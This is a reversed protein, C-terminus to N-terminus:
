PRGWRLAAGVAVADVARASADLPLQLTAGVQWSRLDVELGTVLEHVFVEGGAAAPDLLTTATGLRAGLRVHPLLEMAGGVYVRAPARPADGTAHLSLASALEFTVLRSPWRWAADLTVALLGVSLARADVPTAAALTRVLEAVAGHRVTTPVTVSLRLRPAGFGRTTVGAGFRVNRLSAGPEGWVVGADGDVFGRDGFRMAGAVGLAAGTVRAVNRIEGAVEIRDGASATPADAHAASAFLALTAVAAAAVGVRRV